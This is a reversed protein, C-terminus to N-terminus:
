QCRLGLGARQEKANQCPEWSACCILRHPFLHGICERTDNAWQIILTQIISLAYSKGGKHVSHQDLSQMTLRLGRPVPLISLALPLLGVGM